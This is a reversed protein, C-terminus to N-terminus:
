ETKIIEFGEQLLEKDSLSDLWEQIENHKKAQAKVLAKYTGGTYGYTIVVCAHNGRKFSETAQVLKQGKPLTAPDIASIPNTPRLHKRTGASRRPMGHMPYMAAMMMMSMAALGVFKNKMGM